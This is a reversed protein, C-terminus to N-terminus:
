SLINWRYVGLFRENQRVPHWRSDPHQRMARVSPRRIEGSAAGDPGTHYVLFDEGADDVQSPGLYVMVHFPLSQEPQRYFLLDGPRADGLERSIRRTNFRLLTQADAFEAFAGDELDGPVFPGMRIRFLAMGLPTHPAAFKRVDRTSPRDPLGLRETWASGHDRLSETYAFRILGACDTVERPLDETPRYYMLEALYTFWSRFATEDEPGLRLFDPTGDGLIDTHVAELTVPVQQAKAEPWSIEVVARGPLIGSRLTTTATRGDGRIGEFVLRRQGDVVRVVLAEPVRRGFAAQLRIQLRSSGDAPLVQTSPLVELSGPDGLLAAIALGATGIVILISGLRWHNRRLM